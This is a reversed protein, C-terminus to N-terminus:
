NPKLTLTGEGMRKYASPGIWGWSDRTACWRRLRRRLSEAAAVFKEDKGWSETAGHNQAEYFLRGSRLVGHEERARCWEVAPNNRPSLLWYGQSPIRKLRLQEVHEGLVLFSLWSVNEVGVVAPSHTSSRDAVLVFGLNSAVDRMFESADSADLYL